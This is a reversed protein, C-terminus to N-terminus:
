IKVRIHLRYYVARSGNTISYINYKECSGGTSFNADFTGTKNSFSVSGAYWYTRKSDSYSRANDTTGSFHHM